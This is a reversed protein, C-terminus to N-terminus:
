ELFEDLMHLMPDLAKDACPPRLREDPRSNRRPAIRQAAREPSSNKNTRPGLAASVNNAQGPSNEKPSEARETQAEERRSSRPSLKEVKAKVAADMKILPPWPRKFGEGPLKKTADIGLKSGSAIESTAHDLM